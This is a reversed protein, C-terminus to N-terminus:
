TCVESIVMILRPARAENCARRDWPRVEEEVTVAKQQFVREQSQVRVQQDRAAKNAAEAEERSREAARVESPALDLCVWVLWPCSEFGGISRFM